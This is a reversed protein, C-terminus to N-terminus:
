WFWSKPEPGRKVYSLELSEGAQTGTMVLREEDLQYTGALRTEEDLVDARDGTGGENIILEFGNAEETFRWVFADTEGNFRRLINWRSQREFYLDQYHPDEEGPVFVEGNKEMSELTYVGVLTEYNLRSESRFFEGKTSVVVFLVALLLVVCRGVLVM